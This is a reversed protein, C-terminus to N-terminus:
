FKVNKELVTKKQPYNLINIDSWNAIILYSTFFFIWHRYLDVQLSVSLIQVFAQLILVKLYNNQQRCLDLKKLGHSVM